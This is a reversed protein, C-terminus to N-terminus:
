KHESVAPEGDGGSLALVAMFSVVLLYGSAQLIWILM